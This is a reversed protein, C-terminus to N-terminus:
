IDHSIEALLDDLANSQVLVKGHTEIIERSFTSHTSHVHSNNWFEKVQERDEGNETEYNCKVCRAYFLYKKDNYLIKIVGAGGCHNCPRLITAM